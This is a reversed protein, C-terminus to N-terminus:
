SYVQLALTGRFFSNVTNVSHPTLLLSFDRIFCGKYALNSNEAFTLNLKDNNHLSRLSHLLVILLIFYITLECEGVSVVSEEPIVTSLKGSSRARSKRWEILSRRWKGAKIISKDAIDSTQTQNTENITKEHPFSVAKTSRLTRTSTIAGQQSKRENILNTVNTLVKVPQVSVVELPPSSVTKQMKLSSEDLSPVSLQSQDSNSDHNEDECSQQNQSADHIEVSPVNLSGSASRDVTEDDSSCSESSKESSSIRYNEKRISKRKIIMEESDDMSLHRKSLLISPAKYDQWRFNDVTPQVLAPQPQRLKELLAKARLIASTEMMKEQEKIEKLRQRRLSDCLERTAQDMQQQKNGNVLIPSVGFEFHKKRKGRVQAAPTSVQINKLVISSNGTKKKKNKRMEIKKLREERKLMEYIEDYSEDKCEKAEKM